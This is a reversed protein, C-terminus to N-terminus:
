RAGNRVVCSVPYHAPTYGFKNKLIWRIPAGPHKKIAPSASGIMWCNMGCKAADRKVRDAKSSTWIDSFASDKINGMSSELVNCPRVEGFPDVLFIERGMECPLLRSGGYVYNIIGHNFYARFWDKPRWSKLQDRIVEHFSAAVEEKKEIANDAKHFYYGNHVIATAFEVELCRALEYLELLDKANRDSVTIGFGVDRAGMRKLQLITRIGHDFGDPIGRLADNASPLGELSVRVGLDPYKRLLAVVRDTFYGNTSIVIRRSKQRAVAVIEEIDDRLFPEGGTINLFELGSPMKEVHKPQIEDAPDSPHMWTNCMHCKANCRYTVALIGEM